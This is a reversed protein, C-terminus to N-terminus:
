RSKPEKPSPVAKSEQDEKLSGRFEGAMKKLSRVLEPLRGPAFFLIAVFIIILWHLPQLGFM